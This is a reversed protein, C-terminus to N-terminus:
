LERKREKERTERVENETNYRRRIAWSVKIKEQFEKKGKRKCRSKMM